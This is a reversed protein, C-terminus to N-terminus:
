DDQEESFYDVYNAADPVITLDCPSNIMKLRVRPARRRQILVVAIGVLPVLLALWAVVFSISNFM